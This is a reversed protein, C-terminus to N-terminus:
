CPWAPCAHSTIIQSPSRGHASCWSTASPGGGPLGSQTVVRTMRPRFAGHAPAARRSSSSDGVTLAVAGRGPRHADLPAGHRAVPRGAPLAPSAGPHAVSRDKGVDGAVLSAPRRSRRLLVAAPWSLALSAFVAPGLPRVVQAPGLDVAPFVGPLPRGDRGGAVPHGPGQDLVGAGAGHPVGPGLGAGATRELRRAVRFTM